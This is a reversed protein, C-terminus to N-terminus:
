YYTLAYYITRDKSMGPFMLLELESLYLVLVPPLNSINTITV